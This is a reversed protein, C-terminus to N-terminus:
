WSFRSGEDDPVHPLYSTGGLHPNVATLSCPTVTIKVPPRWIFTMIDTVLPYLQAIPPCLLNINRYSLSVDPLDSTSINALLFQRTAHLRKGRSKTRGELRCITLLTSPETTEDGGSDTIKVSKHPFCKFPIPWCM